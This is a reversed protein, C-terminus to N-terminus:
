KTLTISTRLSSGIGPDYDLRQTYVQNNYVYKVDYGVLSYTKPPSMCAQKEAKTPRSVDHGIGGGLITGAVALAANHQAGIVGGIVAGVLTGVGQNTEAACDKYVPKDEQYVPVSDIVKAMSANTNPIKNTNQIRNEAIVSSSLCLTGILILKKM